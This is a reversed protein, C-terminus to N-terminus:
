LWEMKKFKYWLFASVTTMLSIAFLYGYKWKLEPMVEFNMGWVGAMLTVIAFISAYAALKKTVESEEIAVLALNTQTASTADDRMRECASIIRSLHDHVDRFYEGLHECTKPM